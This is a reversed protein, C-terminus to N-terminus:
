LIRAAHTPLGQAARTLTRRVWGAATPVAAAVAPSLGPRVTEPMEGAKVALVRVEV